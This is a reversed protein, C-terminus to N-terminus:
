RAEVLELGDELVLPWSLIEGREFLGEQKGCFAVAGLRPLGAFEVDSM